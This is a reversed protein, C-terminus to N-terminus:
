IFWIILVGILIISFVAHSKSTIWSWVKLQVMAFIELVDVVGGKFIINNM